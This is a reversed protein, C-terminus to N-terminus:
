RAPPRQWACPFAAGPSSSRPGQHDRWWGGAPEVHQRRPVVGRPRLATAACRYTFSTGTREDRYIGGLLGPDAPQPLIEDHPRRLVAIAITFALISFLSQLTSSSLMQATLGGTLGGAATAVELVM